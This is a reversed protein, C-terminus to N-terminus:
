RFRPSSRPCRREDDIAERLASQGRKIVQEAERYSEMTGLDMWFGEYFEGGIRGRQMADRLLPALPSK